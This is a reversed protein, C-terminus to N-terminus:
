KNIQKTKTISKLQKQDVVDAEQDAENAVQDADDAEEEMSSRIDPFVEQLLRMSRLDDVEMAKKYNTTARQIAEVAAEDLEEKQEKTFVRQGQDEDGGQDGSRHPDRRDLRGDAPGPAVPRRAPGPLHGGAREGARQLVPGAQAM